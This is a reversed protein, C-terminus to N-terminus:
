ESAGSRVTKNTTTTRTVPTHVRTRPAQATQEVWPGSGYPRGREACRRLADLEAGTLAQNVRNLWDVPQAVPWESLPLARPDDPHLRARASSWVWDEACEM